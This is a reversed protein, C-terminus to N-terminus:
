LSFHITAPQHLISDAELRAKKIDYYVSDMNDTAQFKKFWITTRMVSDTIRRNPANTYLFLIREKQQKFSPTTLFHVTLGFISGLVNLIITGAVIYVAIKFVKSENIKMILTM